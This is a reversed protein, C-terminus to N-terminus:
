YLSEPQIGFKKDYLFICLHKKFTTSKNIHLEGTVMATNSEWPNM